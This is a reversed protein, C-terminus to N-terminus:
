CPLITCKGRNVRNWLKVAEAFTGEGDHALNPNVELSVYGDAGSTADFVPRLIDAATRVDKVVLSEYIDHPTAGRQLLSRIEADYATSGAIAKDFITPNSTVGTVGDEEVMRKLEGSDLLERNINDYWISQGLKTLELLSNTPM